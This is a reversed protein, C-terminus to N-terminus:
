YNTELFFFYHLHCFAVRVVLCCAYYDVKVNHGRCNCNILDHTDCPSKEILSFVDKLEERSFHRKSNVDDDVVSNSLGQKMVQRQYIKEEITGTRHAM